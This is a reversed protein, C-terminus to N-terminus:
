SSGPHDDVNEQEPEEAVASQVDESWGATDEKPVEVGVGQEDIEVLSDLYNTATSVPGSFRIIPAGCKACCSTQLEAIRSTNPTAEPPGRETVLHNPNVM